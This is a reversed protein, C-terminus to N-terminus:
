EEPTISKCWNTTERYLKHKIKQLLFDFQEVTMRFYKYWCEPFKRMEQIQVHFEGQCQVGQITNMPHVWWMRRGQLLAEEQELEDLILILLVALVIRKKRNCFRNNLVIKTHM